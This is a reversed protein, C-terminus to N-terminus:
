RGRRTETILPRYIRTDRPPCDTLNGGRSARCLRVARRSVPMLAVTARRPFRQNVAMTSGRHTRKRKDREVRRSAGFFLEAIFEGSVCSFLIANNVVVRSVAHSILSSVRIYHFLQIVTFEIPPDHIFPNNSYRYM